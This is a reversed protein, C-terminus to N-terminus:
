TIRRTKVRLTFGKTNNIMTKEDYWKKYLFCAKKQVFINNKEKRVLLENRLMSM